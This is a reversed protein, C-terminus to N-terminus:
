TKNEEFIYTLYIKNNHKEMMAVPPHKKWNPYAERFKKPVKLYGLSEVILNETLIESM